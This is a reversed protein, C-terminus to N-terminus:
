GWLRDLRNMNQLWSPLSLAESTSQILLKFSEGMGAHPLMLRKAHAIERMSEVSPHAALETLTHQLTPTSALWAGQTMFAVPYLGHSRGTDALATFDIHATIDHSGPSALVDEVVQHRAHGMLTGDRRNPRYYERQTYGYDLTLVVGGHTSSLRALQQQWPTLAPHIESVYGSPWRDIIAKDISPASPWPANADKWILREGNLGVGREFFAGDRWRFCRVPFADPLENSFMILPSDVKAEALEAFSEVSWGDAQYRERQRERLRASREVAIVREPLEDNRALFHLVRSLLSGQGGGQELLTWRTNPAIQRRFHGITDAFAMALWDGMEAGTIFDGHSGFIECQQYYGHDPDYLAMDMYMDFPMFADPLSAIRDRIRTHLDTKAEQKTALNERPRLPM